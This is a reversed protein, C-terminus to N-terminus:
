FSPLSQRKQNLLFIDDDDLPSLEHQYVATARIKQGAGALLFSDISSGPISGMGGLQEPQLTLPNCWQAM